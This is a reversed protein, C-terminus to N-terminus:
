SFGKQSDLLITVPGDNVLEVDMKKRFVGSMVKFGLSRLKEIFLNYLKEGKEAPAAMIFSPRNGSRLDACLTFQSVVLIEGGVQKLSLNMKAKEDAMIRLCSIKKALWDVDTETDTGVVGLFVLFGSGIRSVIKNEVSVQAKKVRQVVAKM